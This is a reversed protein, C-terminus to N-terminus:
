YHRRMILNYRFKIFKGNERYDNIKERSELIAFKGSILELAKEGDYTYLKIDKYEGSNNAYKQWEDHVAGYNYVGTLDIVTGHGLHLEYPQIKLIYVEM